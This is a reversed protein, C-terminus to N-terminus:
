YKVFLWVVLVLIMPVAMFPAVTLPDIQRGDASIRKAYEAANEVRHGRVLLRHSNIGYPTCTVLTCMDEGKEPLLATTDNPEVVKIQDVEYTLTEDLVHIKFLDGEVLLNLDSFLRASLLGRHGSIGSHTNAGGIPLSTYEMHGAAERLDYEDIGHNIVLTTRISPIDIYGMIGNGSLNLLSNYEALEDESLAYIGHRKYIKENFAQAKKLEEAYDANDMNEMGDMYSGIAVSNTFSNWYDALFPYAIILLGGIFIIM